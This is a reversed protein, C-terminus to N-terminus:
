WLGLTAALGTLAALTLLREPLPVQPYLLLAAIAFILNYQLWQALAPHLILYHEKRWGSREVLRYVALLAASWLMLLLPPHFLTAALAFYAALTTCFLCILLTHAQLLAKRLWLAHFTSV